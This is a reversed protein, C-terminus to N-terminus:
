RTFVLIGSRAFDVVYGQQALGETLVRSAAASWVPRGDTGLATTDLLVIDTQPRWRDPREPPGLSLERVTSREAVLQGFQPSVTVPQGGEVRDVADLRAADMEDRGGWDWPKQYPSSPADQLFLVTAALLLAGVLRHDVNVRTISRRGMRNLAVAAAITLPISAVVIQSTSLLGGTAPSDTVRQVAQDGAIGLLLPPVAPLLSRPAMFPLFLLPAFLATMLLLSPRGILDGLARTPDVFLARLEALPATGAAAFSEAATLSASPVSPRLVFIATASWAAGLAATIGGVLRQGTLASVLGLAAVTVGLDARCVLVLTVSPWYWLWREQRSCLIAFALAPVAIVEPHFISLNAFHVAPSLAYAALLAATTGVRLDLVDRAIRWIPVVAFALAGAQVVAFLGPAPAWRTLWLLPYAVFAWQRWVPDIGALSSLPQDGNRVHWAAQTWVGLGPGGDVQRIAALSTATLTIFLMATLIWPLGRDVWSADLRAQVRLALNDLRRRVGTPRRTM